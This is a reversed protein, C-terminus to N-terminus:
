AFNQLAPQYFLPLSKLQCFKNFRYAPGPLRKIQVEDALVKPLGFEPLCCRTRILCPMNLDILLESKPLKSRRFDTQLLDQARQIRFMLIHLM